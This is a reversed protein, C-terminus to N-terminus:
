RGAIDPAIEPIGPRHEAPDPESDSSSASPLLPPTSPDSAPLPKSPAPLASTTQLTALQERVRELEETIGAADSHSSSSAAGAVHDEAHSWYEVAGHETLDVEYRSGDEQDVFM